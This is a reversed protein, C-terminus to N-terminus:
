STVHFRFRIPPKGNAEVDVIVCGICDINQGQNARLKIIALRLKVQRLHRENVSKATISFHTSLDSVLQISVGSVKAGVRCFEVPYSAKVSVVYVSGVDSDDHEEDLDPQEDIHNTIAAQHRGRSTRRRNYGSAPETRAAASLKVVWSGTAGAPEIRAEHV